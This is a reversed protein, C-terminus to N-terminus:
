TQPIRGVVRGISLRGSTRMPHRLPAQTATGATSATTAISAADHVPSGSRQLAEHVTAESLASAPMSM